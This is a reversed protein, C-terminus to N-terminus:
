SPRRWCSQARIKCRPSESKDLARGGGGSRGGLLSGSLLPPLLGGEGVRERLFEHSVRVSEFNDRRALETEATDGGGITRCFRRLIPIPGDSILVALLYRACKFVSSRRHCMRTVAFCSGRSAHTNRYRRNQLHFILFAKKSKSSAVTQRVLIICTSSWRM